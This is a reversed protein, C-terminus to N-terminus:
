CTLDFKVVGDYDPGFEFISKKEWPRNFSASYTTQMNSIEELIKECKFRVLYNHTKTLNGFTQLRDVDAPQKPPGSKDKEGNAHILRLRPIEQFELTNTTTFNRKLLEEDVLNLCSQRNRIFNQYALKRHDVFLSVTEAGVFPATTYTDHCLSRHLECGSVRLGPLIANSQEEVAYRREAWNGILVEKGYPPSAMDDALSKQSNGNM